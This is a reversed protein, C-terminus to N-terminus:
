TQVLEHHLHCSFVEDSDVDAARFYRRTQNIGRAYDGM